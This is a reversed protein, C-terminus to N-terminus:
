IQTFSYFYTYKVLADAGSDQAACIEVVDGAKLNKIFQLTTMTGYNACARKQDTSVVTGNIRIASAVDCNKCTHNIVAGIFYTRDTGVTTTYITHLSNDSSITVQGEVSGERSLINAVLSNNTKIAGTVTGDGITSIDTTGIASEMESIRSVLEPIAPIVEFLQEVATISLGELKVRWLPYERTTEGQYLNEQIMEPDSATGTVAAGKKVEMTLFDSDGNTVFSAYIIDNRNYGSVGNEIIVDQYNAYEIRGIHGGVCLVGDAVRVSNNTLVTSEFKNGINFVGDAGFISQYIAADDQAYIHAAEEAPTNVTIAKFAM